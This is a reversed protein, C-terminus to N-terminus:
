RGYTEKFFTVYTCSCISEGCGFPKNKSRKNLQNRTLYTLCCCILEIAYNMMMARNCVCILSFSKHMPRNPLSFLNMQASIFIHARQYKSM